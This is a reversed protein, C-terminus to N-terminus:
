CRLKRIIVMTTTIMMIMTMIMMMRMTIMMMTMAIMMKTMILAQMETLLALAKDYKSCYVKYNQFSNAHQLFVEGFCVTTPNEKADNVRRALDVKLGASVHVIKQM